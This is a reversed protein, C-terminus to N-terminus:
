LFTVSLFTLNLYPITAPTKPKSDLRTKNIAFSSIPIMEDLTVIIASAILLRESIPLQIITSSPKLREAFGASESCGKPCSLYSCIIASMTATITKEIPTIKPLDEIAIKGRGIDVLTGMIIRVM